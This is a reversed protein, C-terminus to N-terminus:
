LALLLAGLVMLTSAPLRQRLGEEHLILGSWVVTLLTSLKFIAAVYGVFGLAIATFGLVPAVGGIVGLLIFGRAQHRMVSRLHDTRHLIRPSLFLVLPLTTGLAVLPPNQPETHEIAIKELIPTIGWIFAAVFALTVARNAILERMPALWDSAKKLNLVYTGALILLVGAIGTSSPIENLTIISILLTFVPNFTLLPTVFSADSIKLAQTSNLQALINLLVSALIGAFFWADVQPFPIVWALSTVALLPLSLLTAGWVAEASDADALIRKYLIPNFSTLFATLFALWAWM